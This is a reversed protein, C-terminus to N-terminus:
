KKEDNRCQVTSIINNDAVFLTSVILHLKSCFIILFVLLLFMESLVIHIFHSCYYKSLIGVACSCHTFMM